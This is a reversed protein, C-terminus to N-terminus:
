PRTKTQGEALNRSRIKCPLTEYYIRKAFFGLLLAFYVGGTIKPKGM